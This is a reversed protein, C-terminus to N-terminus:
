QPYLKNTLMYEYGLLIQDETFKKKEKHFQYFSKVLSNESIITNAIILEKWAFYLTAVIEATQTKEKRFLAIVKNITEAESEFYNDFHKKYLLSEETKKYVTAERKQGEITFSKKEITFWKNKAFEKDILTLTKGDFPGAAFKKYNTQLAMAGAQESLYLLKMLKTHGFTPEDCLEHIIHSALMLKRLFAKQKNRGPQVPKTEPTLTVVKAEKKKIVLEGRFAKQSLSGYLNELEQLSQQYQIKLAETKEVIHAFQTQLEIPPYPFDIKDLIGTSMHTYADENGHKLKILRSQCYKMLSFFFIPKLNENLRLRILNTSILSKEAKTKIICMKGVTGARSIIIDENMANYRELEWYKEESVFLCGRENFEGTKLINDMIWVPIGSACYEEKKLASGFPGCKTGEKPNIYFETLNRIEFEKENRVPDGFMELFTSKLFEDLLRISEKRQAILNETKSLISAIHLQDPLSPLAVREQLYKELNLNHIGTTKNQYKKTKGVKHLYLMQYLLYKSDVLNSKPRLITTFNNCLYKENSDVDFFVVRGVPQTPGGGSKEIIIDGKKLAKKEIKREEIDREVVNSLDLKGENTFNTTRIVKVGSSNPEQGWEGTIREDILETLKEFNM